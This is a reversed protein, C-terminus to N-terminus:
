ITNDLDNLYILKVLDVYIHNCPNWKKIIKQQIVQGMSKDSFKSIKIEAALLATIKRLLVRISLIFVILLICFVQIFSLM